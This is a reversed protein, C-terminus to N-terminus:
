GILETNPKRLTYHIMGFGFIMSLVILYTRFEPIPTAEPADYFVYGAGANTGDEDDYSDGALIYGASDSIAIYEGLTGANIDSTTLFETQSFSNGSRTFLYAAGSSGYGWAGIAAYAGDDTIDISDGFNDTASQSSATMKNGLSWSGGNEYYSYVAGTYAGADQDGVESILIYDGSDSVAVEWGYNDDDHVDDTPKMFQQFTWTSAVDKYIVASGSGDGEDDDYPLGTAIVDGTGAIAVSYGFQDYDDGTYSTIKEDQSWDGTTRTFTYIAGRANGGEDKLSAGVVATTCSDDVDLAFGFQDNANTDTGTFIQQETWTTGSRTFFYVAGASNGATDELHAGVLACDGDSDMAVDYGFEDSVEQDSPILTDEEAWSTDTRKYVYAEGGNEEGYAGMIAYVGDDSMDVAYGLFDSGNSGSGQLKAMQGWAAFAIFHFNSMFLFIALIFSTIIKKYNM